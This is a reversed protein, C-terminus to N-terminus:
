WINLMYNASLMHVGWIDLKDKDIISFEVLVFYYITFVLELIGIKGYIYLVHTAYM